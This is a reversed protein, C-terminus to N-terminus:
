GDKEKEKKIIKKNTFFLNYKLSPSCRTGLILGELNKVGEM